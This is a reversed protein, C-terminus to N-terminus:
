GLRGEMEWNGLGTELSTGAMVPPTHIWEQLYDIEPSFRLSVQGTLKRLNL